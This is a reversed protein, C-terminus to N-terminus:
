FIEAMFVIGELRQGYSRPEAFCVVLVFRFTKLGFPSSLIWTEMLVIAPFHMKMFSLRM